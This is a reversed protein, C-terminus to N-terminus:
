SYYYHKTKQFTLELGCLIQDVLRARQVVHQSSTASRAPTLGVTVSWQGTVPSVTFVADLWLRM